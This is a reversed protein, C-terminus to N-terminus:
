QNRSLIISKLREERAILLADVTDRLTAPNREKLTELFVSKEDNPISNLAAGGARIYLFSRISYPAHLSETNEKTPHAGMVWRVGLTPINFSQNNIQRVIVLEPVVGLRQLCDDFAKKQHEDFRAIAYNMELFSLATISDFVPEVYWSNTIAGIKYFGMGSKSSSILPNARSSTLSRFIEPNFWPRTLVEEFWLSRQRTNAASLQQKPFLKDTNYFVAGAIMCLFFVFVFFRTIASSSLM